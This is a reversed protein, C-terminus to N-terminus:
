GVAMHFFLLVPRGTYGSLAVSDGAVSPLEFAPAADGVTLGEPSPACAGLLAGALVAALGLV